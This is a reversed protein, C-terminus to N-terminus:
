FRGGTQTRNIERVMRGSADFMISISRAGSKGSLMNAESHLWLLLLHGDPMTTQSNPQGLRSIVESKSMGPQLQTATAEDYDTGMSACSSCGLALILCLAAAKHM